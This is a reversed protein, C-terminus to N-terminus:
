DCFGFYVFILYLVYYNQTLVGLGKNKHHVDLVFSSCVHFGM